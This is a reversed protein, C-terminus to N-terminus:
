EKKRKFLSVTSCPEGFMLSQVHPTLLRTIEVYAYAPVPFHSCGKIVVKADKYAEPEIKALCDQFLRNELDHLDGLVVMNAQGDLHIAVLMYAWLPVIADASCTIAVNKDKYFAWDTEKLAQRFEKERLILGQFLIPPM